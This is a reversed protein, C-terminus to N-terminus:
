NCCSPFGPTKTIIRKLHTIDAVNVVGDGNVDGICIHPAPPAPTTTGPFTATLHYTGTGTGKRGVEIYYTGAELVMEENFPMRIGSYSIGDSRIEIGSANLWRVYAGDYSNSPIGIDIPHNVNVSLRGSESLVCKYFDIHKQYTFYGKVTQGPSLSYATEISNHTRTDINGASTFGTEIFYTGTGSGKRGVEIYYTGAELDMKESFPMRIGSYPIGDGRIEIGSANLWRVYAGDYSNSPIGIDTPHNVNVSLRGPESLVCKYFDIHNQYTFYGKVTQAPSLSYATEISNHTRTDINGASTFGTEIFYTGTGDRKRGVEIYYTGAELDMEESFPMRIGSYPIGDSFIEIGSANLWRVYAGDYSNSPIGGASPSNISVSLRGHQTLEVTYKDLTNTATLNGQLQVGFTIEREEATVILNGIAAFGVAMVLALFVLLVRNFTKGKSQKLNVM